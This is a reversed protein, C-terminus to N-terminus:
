SSAYGEPHRCAHRLPCYYTCEVTDTGNGFQTLPFRGARIRGAFNLVKKVVEPPNWTELEKKGPLLEGIAVISEEADIKKSRSRENLHAYAAGIVKLKSNKIELGAAYIPLQLLRGDKVKTRFIKEDPVSGTKYDMIITIRPDTRKGDVRDIKGTLLVPRGTADKGLLIQDLQLEAALNGFNADPGEIVKLIDLLLDVVGGPSKFLNPLDPTIMGEDLQSKEEEFIQVLLQRDTQDIAPLPQNDPIRSDQRKRRYFSQLVRHILSGYELRTPDAEREELHLVRLGFFRFPCAAYTELQSPSFQYNDPFMAQLMEPWDVALNEITPRCQWAAL